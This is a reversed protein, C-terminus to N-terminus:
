ELEANVSQSAKDERERLIMFAVLRLRAAAGVIFNVAISCFICTGDNADIVLRRHWDLMLQHQVHLLPNNFVRM